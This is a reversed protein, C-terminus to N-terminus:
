PDIANLMVSMEYNQQDNRWKLVKKILDPDGSLSEILDILSHVADVDESLRHYEEISSYLRYSIPHSIVWGIIDKLRTVKEHCEDCLTCLDRDSYDWPDTKKHYIKHHVHLEREKDGCFSCTFKDREFIELRRKQWRPDRLKESYTKM